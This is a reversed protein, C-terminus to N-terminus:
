LAPRASVTIKVASTERYLRWSPRLLIGERHVARGALLHAVCVAEYVAEVNHGKFPGHLIVGDEGYPLLLTPRDVLAYHEQTAFDIVLM